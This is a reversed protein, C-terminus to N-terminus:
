KLMQKQETFMKWAWSNWNRHFKEPAKREDSTFSPLSLSVTEPLRCISTFNIRRTINTYATPNLVFIWYMSQGQKRLSHWCFHIFNQLKMFYSVLFSPSFFDSVLMSAAFRCCGKTHTKRNKYQAFIKEDWQTMRDANRKNNRRSFPHSFAFLLCWFYSNRNVPLHERFSYTDLTSSIRHLDLPQLIPFLFTFLLFQKCWCTSHTHIQERALTDFILLM